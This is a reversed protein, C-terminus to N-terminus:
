EESPREYVEMMPEQWSRHQERQHALLLAVGDAIGVSKKDPVALSTPRSRPCVVTLFLRM